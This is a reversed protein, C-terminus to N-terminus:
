LGMHSYYAWNLWFFPAFLERPLLYGVCSPAHQRGRTSSVTFLSGIHPKIILMELSKM